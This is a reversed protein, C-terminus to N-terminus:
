CLLKTRINLTGRSQLVGHLEDRAVAIRARDTVDVVFIVGHVRSAHAAWLGRYRGQGSMDWAVWRVNRRRFEVMQVGVTPSTRVSKVVGRNAEAVNALHCLISTKGA